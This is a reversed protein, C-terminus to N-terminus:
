ACSPSRSPEISDSLCRINEKPASLHPPKYKFRRKPRITVRIAPIAPAGPKPPPSRRSLSLPM